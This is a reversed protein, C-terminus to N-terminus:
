AVILDDDLTIYCIVNLVKECIFPGVYTGHQGSEEVRAGTSRAVHRALVARRRGTKGEKEGECILGSSMLM